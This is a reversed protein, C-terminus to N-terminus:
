LVTRFSDFKRMFCYFDGGGGGREFEEIDTFKDLEWVERNATSIKRVNLM